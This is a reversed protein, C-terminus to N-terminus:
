RGEAGPATASGDTASDDASGDDPPSEDGAGDTAVADAPAAEDDGGDMEAPEESQLMDPRVKAAWKSDPYEDLLRQFAGPAKEKLKPLRSRSYALGLHYLVKDADEYSPYRELLGEFRNVAAAPYRYHLYFDGVVFEHDALRDRVQQIKVDAEAAYESTPYLRQLEQYAQLAKFTSTQDRNPKEVRKALSNAIQYQAYAAQDSTPFRNLFDRYKAEAQIWNAENGALYYSDALLLLGERGARSNPEVEFAQSLYRRAKSYREKAMLEKGQELAEQASLRLIPDNEIGGSGCGALPVLLGLSLALLLLARKM